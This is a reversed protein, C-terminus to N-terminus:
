FQISTSSIGRQGALVLSKTTSSPVSLLTNRLSTYNTGGASYSISVLVSEYSVTSRESFFAEETDFSGTNGDYIYDLIRKQTESLETLDTYQITITASPVRVINFTNGGVPVVQPAFTQALLPVFVPDPPILLTQSYTSINEPLIYASEPASLLCAFPSIQEGRSNLDTILTFDSNNTDISTGIHHHVDTTTSTTSQYEISRTATTEVTSPATYATGLFTYSGDAQTTTKISIITTETIFSPATYTTFPSAIDPFVKYTGVVGAPDTNDESWSTSLGDADGTTYNGFHSIRFTLNFGFGEYTTSFVSRNGSAYNLSNWTGIYISYPRDSHTEMEYSLLSVGSGAEEWIDTDDLFGGAYANEQDVYTSFGNDAVSIFSEYSQANNGGGIASEDNFYTVSGNNFGGFITSFRAHKSASSYYTTLFTYM